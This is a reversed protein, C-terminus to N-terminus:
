PFRLCQALGVCRAQAAPLMVSMFAALGAASARSRRSASALVVALM